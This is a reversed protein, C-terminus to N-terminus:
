KSHLPHGEDATFLLHSSSLTIGKGAEAAISLYQAEEHPRRDLWAVVPTWIVEGSETGALVIDGIQLDAMSVPGKSTTVQADAPFCPGNMCDCCFSRRVAKSYCNCM